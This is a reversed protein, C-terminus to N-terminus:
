GAGSAGKGGVRLMFSSLMVWECTGLLRPSGHPM